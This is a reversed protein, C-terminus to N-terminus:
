KNIGLKAEIKEGVADPFVRYIGQPEGRIAGESLVDSIDFRKREVAAVRVAGRDDISEGNAVRVWLYFKPYSVGSQTTPTEPVYHM